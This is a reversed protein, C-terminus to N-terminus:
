KRKNKAENICNAVWEVLYAHPESVMNEEGIHEFIRDAAHKSEHAVIGIEAVKKTRFAILISWLGTDKECIDYFVFANAKDWNTDIIESGDREVFNSLYLGLNEGFSVFLQIPYLIPNFKEIM